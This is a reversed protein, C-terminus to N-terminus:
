FSSLLMTWGVSRYQIISRSVSWSCQCASIGSKGKQLRIMNICVVDQPYVGCGTSICGVRHTICIRHDKKEFTQDINTVSFKRSNQIKSLKELLKKKKNTKKQPPIFLLSSVKSTDRTLGPRFYKLTRKKKKM